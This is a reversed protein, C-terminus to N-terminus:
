SKVEGYIKPRMYKDLLPTVANMLLIAFGVGEPYSGFVRIIVTILGCGVGFIIKGKPYLPSTAYDTAMFFAGLMLGGSCLQMLPPLTSEPNIAYIGWSIAFVTGIFSVPIHWTIVRMAILMLGGFILAAASVEGMAGPTFGVFLEWMQPPVFGELTGTKLIYTKSAGLVTAGSMGDLTFSTMQTPFSILLFIRAVLAPNFPNGGLGGFVMKAIVIAAFSGAMAIWLPVAVPLNMALLVGTLVASFDGISNDRKAIKNFAAEFLLCSTVTVAYLIAARSGFTVISVSISPMLAAIVTLMITSTSIPSRTHPAISLTIKTDM